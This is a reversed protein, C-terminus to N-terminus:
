NKKNEININKLYIFLYIERRIKKILNNQQIIKMIIGKRKIIKEDYEQNKNHNLPVHINNDLRQQTSTHIVHYSKIIVDQFVL